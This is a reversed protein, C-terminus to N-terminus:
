RDHPRVARPVRRQTRVHTDPPHVPPVSLRIGKGSRLGRLALPLGGQRPPRRHLRGRTLRWVDITSNCSLARPSSRTARRSRWLLLTKGSSGRRTLSQDDDAHNNSLIMSIHFTKDIIEHATHPTETGVRDNDVDLAICYFPFGKVQVTSVLLDSFVQARHTPATDPHVRARDAPGADWRCTVM